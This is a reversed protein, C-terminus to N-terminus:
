QNTQTRESPWPSRMQARPNRRSQQPSQGACSPWPDAASAALARANHRPARAGAAGQMNMNRMSEAIGPIAYVACGHTLSVIHEDGTTHAQPSMAAPATLARTARTRAAAVGLRRVTSRLHNHILLQGHQRSSFTKELRFCRFLTMLLCLVLPWCSRALICHSQMHIHEENGISQVLRSPECANFRVPHHSPCPKRGREKGTLLDWLRCCPATGALSPACTCAPGEEQAQSDRLGQGRPSAFLPRAAGGECAQGTNDTGLDRKGQKHRAAAKTPSQPPPESAFSTIRDEMFLLLHTSYIECAQKCPWLTAGACHGKLVACLVATDCGM